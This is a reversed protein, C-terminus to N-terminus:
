YFNEGHFISVCLAPPHGNIHGALICREPRAKMISDPTVNLFNDLM